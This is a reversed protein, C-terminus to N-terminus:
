LLQLVLETKVVDFISSSILIFGAVEPGDLVNEVEVPLVAILLVNSGLTDIESGREAITISRIVAVADERLHRRRTRDVAV